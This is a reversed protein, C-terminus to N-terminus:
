GLSEAQVTRRVADVSKGGSGHNRAFTPGIM